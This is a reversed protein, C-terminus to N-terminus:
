YAADTGRENFFEFLASKCCRNLRLAFVRIRHLRLLRPAGSGDITLQVNQGLRERQSYVGLEQVIIWAAPDLSQSLRVPSYTVQTILFFLFKKGRKAPPLPHLIMVAAILVPNRRPSIKSRLHNSTSKARPIKCTRWLLVPRARVTGRLLVM